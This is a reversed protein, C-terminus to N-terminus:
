GKIVLTEPLWRLLTEAVARNDMPKSLFGNFGNALFMERAGSVANATLAIIPVHRAPERTKNQEDEMSRILRVAEVGDMGPMMHDM